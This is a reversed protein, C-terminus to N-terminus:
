AVIAALPNMEDACKLSHAFDLLRSTQPSRASSSTQATRTRTGALAHIRGFVMDQTVSDSPILKDPDAVASATEASFLPDGKLATLPNNREYL